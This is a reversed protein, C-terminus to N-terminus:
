KWPKALKKFKARSMLARRLTPAAVAETFVEEPEELQGGEQRVTRDYQSGPADNREPLQAYQARMDREAIVEPPRYYDDEPLTALNVENIPINAYDQHNERLYNLANRVYNRRIRFNRPVGDASYQLSM